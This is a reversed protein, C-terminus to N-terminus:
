RTAPCWGDGVTADSMGSHAVLSAPQNQRRSRRKAGSTKSKATASLSLGIDSLATRRGILIM